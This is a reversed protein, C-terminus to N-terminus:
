PPTWSLGFPARTAAPHVRAGGRRARDGRGDCSSRAPPASDAGQPEVLAEAAWAWGEQGEAKSRPIPLHAPVDDTPPPAAIGAHAETSKQWKKAWAARM